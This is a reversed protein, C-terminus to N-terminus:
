NKYFPNVFFYTFFLSAKEVKAIVLTSNLLRMKCNKMLLTEDNKSFRSKTAHRTLKFDLSKDIGRLM